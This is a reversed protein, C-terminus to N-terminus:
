KFKRDDVSIIVDSNKLTNFYLWSAKKLERYVFGVVANQEKFVASSNVDKATYLYKGVGLAEFSNTIGKNVFRNCDLTTHFLPDKYNKTGTCEKYTQYSAGDLCFYKDWVDKRDGTKSTYDRVVQEARVKYFDIMAYANNKCGAKFVLKQLNDYKVKQVPDYSMIAADYMGAGSLRTGDRGDLVKNLYGDYTHYDVEVRYRNNYRRPPFIVRMEASSFIVSVNMTYKNDGESHQSNDDRYEDICTYASPLIGIVPLNDYEEPILFHQGCSGIFASVLWGTRLNMVGKSDLDERNKNSYFYAKRLVLKGFNKGDTLGEYRPPKNMRRREEYIVSVDPSLIEKIKEIMGDLKALLHNYDETEYKKNQVLCLMSLVYIDGDIDGAMSAIHPYDSLYKERLFNDLKQLEKIGDPNKATLLKRAKDAYQEFGYAM